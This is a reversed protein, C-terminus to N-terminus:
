FDIVLGRLPRVQCVYFFKTYFMNLHKFFHFLHLARECIHVPPPLAVGYNKRVDIKVECARFRKGCEALKAGKKHGNLSKKALM